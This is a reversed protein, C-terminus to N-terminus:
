QEAQVRKLLWDKEEQELWKTDKPGNPLYYLVAFALLVSPLGELLFLWQWGQLGWWHLGLFVGSLPSGTAIAVATATMFLGVIRARDAATYWYTLYLIMGPFFGAEAVGLLFRLTYFLWASNVCAMAMAIVGWTFMIRAIWIRAGIRELIINS